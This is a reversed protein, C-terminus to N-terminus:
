PLTLPLPSWRLHWDGGFHKKMFARWQSATTRYPQLALRLTFAALSKQWQNWTLPESLSDTLCSALLSDDQLHPPEAASAMAAFLLLWSWHPIHFCAYFCWVRLLYTQHISVPASVHTFIVNSPGPVALCPYCTHCSCLHCACASFFMSASDLAGPRRTSPAHVPPVQRCSSACPFLSLFFFQNCLHYASSTNRDFCRHILFWCSSRIRRPYGSAALPCFPLFPSPFLLASPSFFSPM